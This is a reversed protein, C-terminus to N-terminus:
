FGYSFGGFIPISNLKISKGDKELSINRFGAKLLIKTNQSFNKIIEAYAIYNLKGILKESEAIQLAYYDISAGIQWAYFSQIRNYIGLHLGTNFYSLKTYSDNNGDLSYGFYPYVERNLFTGVKFTLYKRPYIKKLRLDYNFFFSNQSSSEFISPSLSLEASLNLNNMNKIISFVTGLIRVDDTEKLSYENSFGVPSFSEIMSFFVVNYEKSNLINLKRDHEYSVKKNNITKGNWVFDVQTVGSSQRNQGYAKVSFRYQNPRVKDRLFFISNKKYNKNKGILKWSDKNKKHMRYSYHTGNDVSDWNIKFYKDSVEVEVDPTELAAGLLKFHTPEPKTQNDEINNSVSWKYDRGVELNLIKTNGSIIEDIIVEGQDDWIVLQYSSVEQIPTWQFIVEQLDDEDSKITEDALPRIPKPQPFVINVPSAESWPGAIGRFDLSRIQIQYEGPELTENWEPLDLKYMKVLYYENQDNDRKTLKLEYSVAGPIPDFSINLTRDEAFVSFILSTLLFLIFAKM